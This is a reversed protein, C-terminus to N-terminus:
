KPLVTVQMGIEVSGGPIVQVGQQGAGLLAPEVCIFNRWEGPGLDSMEAAREAGPNWVVTSDHGTGEVTITRDRDSIIVRPTGLGIRDHLGHVTVPGEQTTVAGSIRDLVDVGDLGEIEISEVDDVLFYPHFALQVTRAADTDNSLRLSIRFGSDDASTRVKLLLGEHACTAVIEPADGTTVETVEWLTRRAWGHAPGPGLLDGFWPAIIPVGGRIANGEGFQSTSSLYLLDPGPTAVSTVHAGSPSISLNGSTIIPTMGGYHLAGITTNM